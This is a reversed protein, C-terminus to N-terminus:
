MIITIKNKSFICQLVSWNSMIEDPADLFLLLKCRRLKNTFRLSYWQSILALIAGCANKHPFRVFAFNQSAIRLLCQLQMRKSNTFFVFRDQQIQICIEQFAIKMSCDHWYICLHFADLLKHPTESLMMVLSFLHYLYFGHYFCIPCLTYM